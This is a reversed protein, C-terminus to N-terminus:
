RIEEIIGDVRIKILLDANVLSVYKTRGSENAGFPPIKLKYLASWSNLLSENKIKTLHPTVAVLDLYQTPFFPTQLGDNKQGSFYENIRKNKNSFFNSLGKRVSETDKLIMSTPNKTATEDRM